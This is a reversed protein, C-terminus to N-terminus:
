MTQIENNRHLRIAERRPRRPVPRWFRPRRLLPVAHVPGQGPQLGPFYLIIIKKVIEAFIIM